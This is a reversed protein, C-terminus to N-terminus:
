PWEYIVAMFHKFVNAEASEVTTHTAFCYINVVNVKAKV